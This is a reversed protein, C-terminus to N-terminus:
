SADSSYHIIKKKLFLIVGRFSNQDRKVIKIKKVEEPIGLERDADKIAWFLSVIFIVSLCVIIIM